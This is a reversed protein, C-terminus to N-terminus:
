CPTYVVPHEKRSLYRLRATLRGQQFCCFLWVANQRCTRIFLVEPGPRIIVMKTLNIPSSWVASVEEFTHACTVVLGDGIVFGSSLKVKSKQPGFDDKPSMCHAVMVIGQHTKGSGAKDFTLRRSLPPTSEYPLPIDLIRHANANFEHSLDGLTSGKQISLRLAALLHSDLDATPGPHAPYGNAVTAMLRRSVHCGERCAGHYHSSLMRRYCGSVSTNAFSLMPPPYSTHHLVRFPNMPTRYRGFWSM